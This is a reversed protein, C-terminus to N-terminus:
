APWSTVYQTKSAIYFDAWQRPTTVGPVGVAIVWDAPQNDKAPDLYISLGRSLRDAAAPWNHNLVALEWARRHTTAGKRGFFTEKLTRLEKAVADFQQKGDFAKRFVADNSYDGEYVRRQVYGCDVGGAVSWNVAGVYFGSEGEIVGRLLNVPLNQVSEPAKALYLAMTRQTLPGAIGDAELGREGQFRTVRAKTNNGYDGDETIDSSYVSNLNVQLAWVDHGTLGPKLTYRYTRSPFM